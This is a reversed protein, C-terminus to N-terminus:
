SDRFQMIKFTNNLLIEWMKMSYALVYKHSFEAISETIESKNLRIEKKNSKYEGYPFVNWCHKYLKNLAKDM